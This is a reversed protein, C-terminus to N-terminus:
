ETYWMLMLMVDVDVDVIWMMGTHVVIVHTVTRCADSQGFLERVMVAYNSRMVRSVAYDNRMVRSM